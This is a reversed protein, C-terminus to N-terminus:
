TIIAVDWAGTVLSSYGQASIDQPVGKLCFYIQEQGSTANEDNISNNGRQLIASTVNTSTANVMVTGSCGQSENEITFNEAYIYDTTTENGQLDLATVNIYLNVDNGSNNILIPDDQSGTDTDAIGVSPWTLATPAMTMATQVNYTFSESANEAYANNNDEITANISWDGNQDFYWMYITCNFTISNTSANRAICSTNGRTPEGTRNFYAAATSNDINGMGDTDTVTFNFSISKNSGITPDTNPIISVFPITPVANGITINLSTTNSTAKGTIKGFFESFFDASALPVIILILLALSSLIYVSKKKM